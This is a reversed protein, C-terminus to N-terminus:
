VRKHLHVDTSHSKGAVAFTQLYALGFGNEQALGAYKSKEEDMLLVAPCARIFSGVGVPSVTGHATTLTLM